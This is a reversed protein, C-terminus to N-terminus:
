NNADYRRDGFYKIEADKRAKIADNKNEFYGLSIRKNDVAIYAWWKRKEKLWFVGTVGSKNNKYLSLNMQNQSPTALTLNKKRNDVKHENGRPHCKHDVEINPDAVDMVLRHLFIVGDKGKHTVYGCTNYYWCYKKVLDIDEKDFWFPEGKLTYGIAYEESELDFINYQKNANFTTEKWLCGCSRTGNKKTLNTGLVIIKNQEKCSCECLWQARHKKSKPSIYDEAQKIVTLRGFVRGTLDEKVQVM